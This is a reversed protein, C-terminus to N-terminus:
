IYVEKENRYTVYGLNAGPPKRIYKRKTYIVGAKELEPVSSYRKALKCCEFLVLEDPERNDQLKLLVHSGANGKVHFWYDEDKALKSIIFDNQKNNRGIYVKFDYLDVQLIMLKDISNKSDKVKEPLLESKIEELLEIYDASEISYLVEELYSKTDLLTTLLEETKEKTRKSKSYLKYYRKANEIMSLTEDLPILIKEGTNYDDLEIEKIFNKNLYVNATLLEGYLKYKETNDRRNRVSKIDNLASKTKRYRAQAVAKLEGKLVALRKVFQQNSYYKDLMENVSSLFVKGSDILDGFISYETDNMAPNVNQLEFCDKIKEVDLGTCLTSFFKSFGLYEDALTEFNRIEYCRMFDKKNSSPPYVYPIGGYLERVSSKNEGINHACGIIISTTKDYLIINSHKGMLEIALVLTKEGDIENKTELELEIIREYHPQTINVIKANDLYKRLLMCFMPPKSPYVLGRLNECEESMFSLHYIDPTINIYLKRSEGQNRLVLVLDKSSSQRIKQIRAGQLYGSNEKIFAKITLYDINIM